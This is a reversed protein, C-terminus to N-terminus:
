KQHGYNKEKRKVSCIFRFAQTHDTGLSQTLGVEDVIILLLSFDPSKDGVYEDMISRAVDDVVNQQLKYNTFELYCKCISFLLKM